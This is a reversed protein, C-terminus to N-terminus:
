ALGAELLLELLRKLRSFLLSLLLKLVSGVEVFVLELYHSFNPFDFLNLTSNHYLNYLRIGIM